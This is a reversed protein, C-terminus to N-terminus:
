THVRTFRLRFLSAFELVLPELEGRIGLLAQFSNALLQLFDSRLDACSTGLGFLGARLCLLLASSSPQDFSDVLLGPGAPKLSHVPAQAVQAGDWLLVIHSDGRSAAHEIGDYDVASFIRLRHDLEDAAVLKAAGRADGQVLDLLALPLHVHGDVSRLTNSPQHVQDLRSLRLVGDGEEECNLVGEDGLIQGLGRADAHLALLAPAHDRQLAAQNIGATRHGSAAILHLFAAHTGGQAQVAGLLDLQEDSLVLLRAVPEVGNPLLLM